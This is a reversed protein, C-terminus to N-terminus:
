RYKGVWVNNHPNSCMDEEGCRTRKEVPGVAELIIRKAITINNFDRPIMFSVTTYYQLPKFKLCWIKNHNFVRVM